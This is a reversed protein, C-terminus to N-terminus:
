NLFEVCQRGVQLIDILIKADSEMDKHQKYLLKLGNPNEPNKQVYGELVSLCEESKGCHQLMKLFIFPVFINHDDVQFTQQYM